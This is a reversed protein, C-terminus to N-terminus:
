GRSAPRGYVYDIQWGIGNLTVTTNSAQNSLKISVYDGEDLTGKIITERAPTDAAFAVATTHTAITTGTATGSTGKNLLSIQVAGASIAANSWLTTGVIECARDARFIIFEHDTGAVLDVNAGTYIMGTVSQPNM